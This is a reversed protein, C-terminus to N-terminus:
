KIISTIIAKQSLSDTQIRHTVRSIRIADGEKFVKMEVSNLRVWDVDGSGLVKVRVIQTVERNGSPAQDSCSAMLSIVTLALLVKKM